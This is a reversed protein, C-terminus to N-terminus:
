ERVDDDGSMFMSRVSSSQSGALVKKSSRLIRRASRPPAPSQNPHLSSSSPTRGQDRGREASVMVGLVVCVSPRNTDM